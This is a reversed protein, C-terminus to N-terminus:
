DWNPDLGECDGEARSIILCFLRIDTSAEHFYTTLIKTFVHMFFPLLPLYLHAIFFIIAVLSFNGISSRRAEEMTYLFEQKFTTLSFSISEVSILGCSWVCNGLLLDDECVFVVSIFRDIFLELNFGQMNAGVPSM